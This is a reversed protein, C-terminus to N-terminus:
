KELTTSVKRVNQRGSTERGSTKNRFYILLARKFAGLNTPNEERRTMVEPVPLGFHAVAVTELARPSFREALLAVERDTLRHSQFSLM